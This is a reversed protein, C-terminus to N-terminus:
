FLINNQHLAREEHSHQERRNNAAAPPGFWGFWWILGRRFGSERPLDRRETRRHLPVGTLRLQGRGIAADDEAPEFLRVRRGCQLKGLERAARPCGRFRDRRAVAPEDRVSVDVVYGDTSGAM